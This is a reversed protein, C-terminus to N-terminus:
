ADFLLLIWALKAHPKKFHLNFPQLHAASADQQICLDRFSVEKDLLGFVTMGAVLKHLGSLPMSCPFARRSRKGDM